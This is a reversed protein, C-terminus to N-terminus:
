AAILGANKLGAIQDAREAAQGQSFEPYAARAYAICQDLNCRLLKYIENVILAEELARANAGAPLRGSLIQRDWFLQVADIFWRQRLDQPQLADDVLVGASHLMYRYNTFVKRKTVPEADIRDNIFATLAAEGFAGGVWDDGM